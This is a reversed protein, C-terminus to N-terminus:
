EIVPFLGIGFQSNWRQSKPSTIEVAQQTSQWCRHVTHEWDEGSREYISRTHLVNVYPHQFQFTLNSGAPWTILNSNLLSFNKKLFGCLFLFATNQYFPKWFIAKEFFWTKARGNSTVSVKFGFHTFQHHRILEALRAFFM